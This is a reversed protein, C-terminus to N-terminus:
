AEAIRQGKEIVMERIDRMRSGAGAPVDQPRTAGDAPFSVTRRQCLRIPKRKQGAASLPLPRTEEGMKGDVEGQSFGLDTLMIQLAKIGWNDGGAPHTYLDEWLETDRTLLAYIAQARRGSLPKNYADTNVPDAHGFISLPPFIFLAPEGGLAPKVERKHEERLARLHAVEEAVEPRVFSSDFEFRVDEVRWCAVPIVATTVLNRQDSTSPGVFVEHAIAPPHSGAVGGDTSGHIVGISEDSM